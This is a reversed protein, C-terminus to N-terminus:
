QERPIDEIEVHRQKHIVTLVKILGDSEIEYLTRYSNLKTPRTLAAYGSVFGCVRLFAIGVRM